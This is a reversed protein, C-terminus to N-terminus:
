EGAHYDGPQDPDDCQCGQVDVGEPCGDCYNDADGGEADGDGEGPRCSVGVAAAGFVCSSVSLGLAGGVTGTSWGRVFAFRRRDPANPVRKFPTGCVTGRDAFRCITQSTLEESRPETRRLQLSRLREGRPLM